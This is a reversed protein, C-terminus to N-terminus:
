QGLGSLTMEDLVDLLRLGYKGDVVVIEAHAVLTGNVRVDLPEGAAKDLALVEGDGLQLLEGLGIDVSDVELTLQLPINKLVSLSQPKTNKEPAAATPEDLLLSDLSDDDLNIDDFTNNTTSSESM